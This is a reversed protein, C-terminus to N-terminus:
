CPHLFCLRQMLGHRRTSPAPMMATCSGQCCDVSAAPRCSAEAAIRSALPECALRCTFPHSSLECLSSHLVKAHPTAPIEDAPLVALLLRLRAVIVPHWPAGCGVRRSLTVPPCATMRTARPPSPHVARRCSNPRHRDVTDCCLFPVPKLTLPRPLPDHAYRNGARSSTLNVPPTRLTDPGMQCRRSCAFPAPQSRVHLNTPTLASSPRGRLFRGVVIKEL